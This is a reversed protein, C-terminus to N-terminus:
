AKLFQILRQLQRYVARRQEEEKESQSFLTVGAITKLFVYRSGDPAGFYPDFRLPFIIKQGSVLDDLAVNLLASLLPNAELGPSPVIAVKRSVRYLAEADQRSRANQVDVCDFVHNQQLTLFLQEVQYARDPGYLFLTGIPMIDTM